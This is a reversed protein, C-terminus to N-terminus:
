RYLEKDFLDAVTALLRSVFNDEDADGGGVGAMAVHYKAM